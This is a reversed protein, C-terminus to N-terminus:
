RNFRKDLIEKYKKSKVILNGLNSVELTNKPKHLDVMYFMYDGLEQTTSAYNM